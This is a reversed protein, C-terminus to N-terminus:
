LEDESSPVNYLPMGLGDCKTLLLEGVLLLEGRCNDQNCFWEGQEDYHVPGKRGNEGREPYTELASRKDSILIRYGSDHNEVWYCKKSEILQEWNFRFGINGYFSEPYGNPSLWIANTGSGTLRGEDVLAPRIIGDELIRIADSIHTFHVVDTLPCCDANPYNRNTSPRGVAYREWEKVSNAM